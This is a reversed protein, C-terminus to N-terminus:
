NSTDTHSPATPQPEPTPDGIDEVARRLGVLHEIFWERADDHTQPHTILGSPAPRRFCIKCIQKGPEDIFEIPEDIGQQFRPTHLELARLLQRNRDADGTDIYLEARLHGSGFVAYFRTGKIPSTIGFWNGEGVRHDPSVLDPARARLQEVTQTWFQAFAEARETRQTAAAVRVQKQWDNPKAVVDLLPAAPSAGIRVARVAVGFFRVGALTHENLWDLAQRHEERFEKAVWVITGAGTGAAYTVLKGLHDHDTAEIQNEVILAVDHTLDRGLLDLSFSGVAHEPQDLEIAIGLVEALVDANALLWPTFAHAEHPWVERLGVYELRGVSPPSAEM